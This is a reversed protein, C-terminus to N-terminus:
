YGKGYVKAYHLFEILINNKEKTKEHLTRIITNITKDRMSPGEFMKRKYMLEEARKFVEQTIEGMSKKTEFGFSISIDVSGVKEKTSNRKINNIIQQTEIMDTKCLLIVFEDGGLRAVIDFERCGKLIVTAVKKLLEDGIAHGFSDNVLKLGNVDAMVITLPLNEEVDLRELENEFFRRNYLGTLQDQYGLWELKQEMQKRNTIDRIIGVVTNKTSSVLRAEYDSIGNDINLFYEITQVKEIIFPSNILFMIQKSIEIPLTDFISKNIYNEIQDEM